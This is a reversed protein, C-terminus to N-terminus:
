TQLRALVLRGNGGAAGGSRSQTLVVFTDELVAPRGASMATRRSSHNHRDITGCLFQNPDGLAAAWASQASAAYGHGCHAAVVVEENIEDGVIWGISGPAIALLGVVEDDTCIAKLQSTSHWMEIDADDAVSINQALLPDSRALHLYRLTVLEVADEATVFNELRIRGDPPRLDRYRAVHITQDRITNEARIRGPAARLHLYEVDFISWENRVCDSLEAVDTFSHAVIEVFPRKINQKYFRIGGLLEGHQSQIHRHAYDLTSVGALSIHDAFERAFDLNDIRSHEHDFWQGVLKRASDGYMQAALALQDALSPWHSIDKM